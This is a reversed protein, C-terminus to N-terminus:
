YRYNDHHHHHHHYVRRRVYRHHHHHHHDRYYQVDQVAVEGEALPAGTSAAANSAQLLALANPIPKLLDAYSDAQMAAEITAPAATAAHVPSAAAFAGMAGLLGAVTKDM